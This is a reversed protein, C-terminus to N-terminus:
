DGKTPDVDLKVITEVSEKFKNRQKSVKKMHEFVEEPKLVQNADYRLSPDLDPDQSRKQKYFMQLAACVFSCISLCRGEATNFSSEKQIRENRYQRLKRNIRTQKRLAFMRM